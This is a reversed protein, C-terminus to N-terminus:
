DARHVLRDDHVTIKWGTGACMVRSAVYAFRRRFAALNIDDINSTVTIPQQRKKRRRKRKM